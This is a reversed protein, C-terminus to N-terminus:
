TVYGHKKALFNAMENDVSAVEDESDYDGSYEVKELPKGDDDVLTVKGDIILKEIKDIKDIIPTTSLRSSDVNWFSSRSSNAEQSALNSTGCNTGLEVDNEVSTLVEFSNSKSVKKTPETNNKKNGSINTTSKKNLSIKVVVSPFVRLIGSKLDLLDQICVLCSVYISVIQSLSFTIDTFFYVRSSPILDKYLGLREVEARSSKAVLRPRKCFEAHQAVSLGKTFIDAVNNASAVKLVKIVSSTFKKSDCYLHTPLLGDVELEKLIKVVWILKCTTSALCRYESKASSRSITAQKKHVGTGPANKLYRLARLAITFHSQLPAHMNQSLCHAVYSIDPRTISLYILKGVIKQYETMNPLFKDNESENKNELVEIGLFYKLLGLDKNMFKSSLFKKFKDIEYENNGTIVIDDVYVLIAIFINNKSVIVMKVVPSFTEEYDIGDRQSFGNAVLRAKYRDNKGSSKYKIKWIWKCGIDKRRLPLDALIYTNNRHLAEMKLNMAKIWKPNQSAEYFTKPEISKNLTTSFM